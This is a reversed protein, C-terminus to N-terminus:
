APAATPMLGAGATQGVILTRQTDIEGEERTLRLTRITTFFQGTILNLSLCLNRPSLMIRVQNEPLVCMERWDTKCPVSSSAASANLGSALAAGAIVPSVIEFLVAPVHPSLVAGSGSQGAAPAQGPIVHFSSEVKLMGLPLLSHFELTDLLKVPVM